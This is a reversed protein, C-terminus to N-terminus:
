PAAEDAGIDWVAGRQVGDVDDTFLGGVQNTGHDRAGNDAPALHFNAASVDTFSFSQGLRDHANGGNDVTYGLAPADTGNYDTGAEFAGSAATDCDVLLNNKLLAQGGRQRVGIASSAITNNYALLLGSDAFLAIEDSATGHFGILVNNYARLQATSPTHWIEIGFHEVSTGDSHGVILCGRVDVAADNLNPYVSVGISTVGPDGRVDIQLGEIVAHGIEVLFVSDLVSSHKFITFATDVWNGTHRQSVGVEAPAAPAFIRLYHSPDTLLGFLRVAEEDVADAYCAVHRVQNDAVLDYDGLDFDRLAPAIGINGIGAVMEVLSTYARHLAWLNTSGVMDPLPQGDPDRVSYTQSNVRGVIMALAGIYGDGNSDYQLLDGVGVRDPLPLDFQAADGTLRLANGTGSALPVTNSPGMSRYIATVAPAPAVSFAIPYDDGNAVGTSSRCRLYFNYTTGASLGVVTARHQLGDVTSFRGDMHAYPIGAVGEYACFSVIDTMVRLEAAATDAALTGTPAGQSRYPASAARDSDAGDVAAGDVGSRDAAAVDAGLRDDAAPRDDSAHDTQDRDSALRDSAAADGPPRADVTDATLGFGARLCGTLLILCCLWCGIWKHNSRM